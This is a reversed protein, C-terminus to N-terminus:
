LHILAPEWVGGGRPILISMSEIPKKLSGKPYVLNWLADSNFWKMAHTKKLIYNKREKEYETFNGYRKVM